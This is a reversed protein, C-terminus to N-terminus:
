GLPGARGAHAAIQAGSLAYTYIAIDDLVGGFYQDSPFWRAFRLPSSTDLM